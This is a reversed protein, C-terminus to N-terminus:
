SKNIAHDEETILVRTGVPILDFLELIGSNSMRICGHSLPVGLGEEDPCGHIYIFRKLTDVNGFRNVGPELGGLWLIRTLIWDRGPQQTALPPSYIEGTPRRRVFVTNIPASTGIKARVRHWGRPTMESGRIEGLGRKATSVTYSRITKEDNLLLLQQTQAFIKIIM